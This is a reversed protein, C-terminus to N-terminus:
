RGVPSLVSDRGIRLRNGRWTTTHRFWALGWVAFAVCDKVIGLLLLTWNPRAGHLRTLLLGDLGLRALLVVFAALALEQVGGVCALASALLLSPTPYLLPELLYGALSIRRRMQAWRSHRAWFRRLTWGPVYCQVASPAVAVQYGAAHFARGLVYDEALVNRVSAWGGLRTLDSRRFFMSKGVVCARDLYRQAFLTARGVFTALILTELKSGLSDAGSGLILNTVLGVGPRAAQGALQQLYDPQVRVNSDSILIADFAAHRSLVELISVKPNFGTAEACVHVRIPIEPFDRAVKRAV